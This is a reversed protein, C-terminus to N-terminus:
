DILESPSDLAEGPKFVTRLVRRERCQQRTDEDLGLVEDAGRGACPSGLDDRELAPCSHDLCERQDLVVLRCLSLGDCRLRQRKGLSGTVGNQDGCSQATGALDVEPSAVELKGGVEGELGGVV